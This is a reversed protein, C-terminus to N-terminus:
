KFILLKDFNSKTTEFYKFEFSELNEPHDPIFYRIKENTTKILNFSYTDCLSTDSLANEILNLFKSEKYVNLDEVFHTINVKTITDSKINKLKNYELENFIYGCTKRYFTWDENM